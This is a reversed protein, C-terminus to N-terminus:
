IGIRFFHKSESFPTYCSMAIAHMLTTERRDLPAYYRSDGTSKRVRHRVTLECLVCFLIM